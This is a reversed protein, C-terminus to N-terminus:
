VNKEIFKAWKDEWVSMVYAKDEKSLGSYKISNICLKKVEALGLNWCVYAAFFDDTLTTHEEYAPDDSALIIEVGEKLYGAAPHLRLDRVYDLIQNSIPCIELVVKDKKIMEKVEPYRYLNLGHGIREAGMLYADIINDCTAYLSEGAHLYVHINPHEEKAKAIREAYQGLPNSKDEENVLDIGILFDRVHSADFDDKLNEHVYLSNTLLMECIAPPLTTLKLGAGVLSVILEPYKKKVTYYAKRINGATRMADENSGFLLPKVELHFINNECYYTFAEVYYDETIATCIDGHYAFLMEMYEWVDAGEPNGALTWIKVLEEKTFDGDAVAQATSKYTEAEKKADEAPMLCGRKGESVCVYLKDNKMMFDVLEAGPMLAGGHVHLDSGKPMEKFFKYLRSNWIKEDTLVNMEYPVPGNYSEIYEKKMDLLKKDIKKEKDNLEEGVYTCRAAIEERKLNYNKADFSM